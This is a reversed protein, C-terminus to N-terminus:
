TPTPWPCCSISGAKRITTSSAPSSTPSIATRGRDAVRRRDAPGAGAGARRSRRLGPLRGEASACASAPGRAQLTFSAVGANHGHSGIWDSYIFPAGLSGIGSVSAAKQPLVESAIPPKKTAKDTM